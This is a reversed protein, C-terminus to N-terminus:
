FLEESGHPWAETLGQDPSQNGEERIVVVLPLPPHMPLTNVLNRCMDSRPGPRRETNRDQPVRREQYLKASRTLNM